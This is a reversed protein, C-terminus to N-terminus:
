LLQHCNGQSAVVAAATVAHGRRRDACCGQSAQEWRCNDAALFAVRQLTLAQHEVGKHADESIFGLCSSTSDDLLLGPSLQSLMCLVCDATLLCRTSCILVCCHGHHLMTTGNNNIFRPNNSICCASCRYAMLACAQPYCNSFSSAACIATTYKYKALEPWCELNHVTPYPSSTKMPRSQQHPVTTMTYCLVRKHFHQWWVKTRNTGQVSISCMLLPKQASNWLTVDSTITQVHNTGHAQCVPGYTM